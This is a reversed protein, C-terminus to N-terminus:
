NSSSWKNLPFGHLGHLLFLRTNVYRPFELQNISRVSWIVTKVTAKETNADERLHYLFKYDITLQPRMNKARITRFKLLSDIQLEVLFARIVYTYLIELDTVYKHM